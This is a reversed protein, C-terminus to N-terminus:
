VAGGIVFIMLSLSVVIMLLFCSLVALVVSMVGEASRVLSTIVTTGFLESVAASFTFILKYCVVSIVSPLIVATGAIIGFTGFNNRIMKIGGQMVAMADSITGGIFPVGNSVTFRAAKLGVTDAPVSIFSQIGLLAVFVTVLLGLGWIIIKKAAQAMAELRLDPNTCGALTIGVICVTLPMIVKVAIQMFLQVGGMVISNFVAASTIHGSMTVVGAFAPIFGSLFVSGTELTQSAESLALSVSGTIMAASALVSVVAFVNKAAGGVSKTLVDSLSCLLIIGFLSIFLKVARDIGGTFMESIYKLVNELSISGSNIEQPTIGSEGLSNYVSDPLSYDSDNLGFDPLEEAFVNMTFVAAFIIFTVATLIYKVKKKM